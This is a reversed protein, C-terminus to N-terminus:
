KKSEKQNNLWLFFCVRPRLARICRSIGWFGCIFFICYLYPRLSYWFRSWVPTVDKVVCRVAANGDSIFRVTAKPTQKHREMVDSEHQTSPRWSKKWQVVDLPQYSIKGYRMCTELLVTGAPYDCTAKDPERGGSVENQSTGKQYNQGYSGNREDHEPKKPSDEREREVTTESASTVPESTPIYEFKQGSKTTDLFHLLAEVHIARHRDSWSFIFSKRGNLYEERFQSAVKRLAWRSIVSKAKEEEDKYNDDGGIVILVKDGTAGLLARYIKAYGIGANDENISLRSEHAHVVFVAFDMQLRPITTKCLEGMQNLRFHLKEVKFNCKGNVELLLTEVSDLKFTKDCNFLYVTQTTSKAM